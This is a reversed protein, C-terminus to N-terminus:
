WAAVCSAASKCIARDRDPPHTSSRVPNTAMISDDPYVRAARVRVSSGASGAATVRVERWRRVAERASGKEQTVRAATLALEAQRAAVASVRKRSHWVRVCARAQAFAAPVRAGAYARQRPCTAHTYISIESRFASSRIAVGGGTKM